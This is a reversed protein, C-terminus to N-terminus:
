KIRDINHRDSLLKRLELYAEALNDKFLYSYKIVMIKYYRIENIQNKIELRKIQKLFDNHRKVLM